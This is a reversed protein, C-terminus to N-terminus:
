FHVIELSKEPPGNALVKHEQYLPGPTQNKTLSSSGVHLLQTRVSCSFIWCLWILLYWSDRIWDGSGGLTINGDLSSLSWGHPVPTKVRGSSQSRWRRQTTTIPSLLPLNSFLQSTVVKRLRLVVSTQPWFGRTHSQGAGPLITLWM